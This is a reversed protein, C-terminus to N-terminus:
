LGAKIRNSVAAADELSLHQIQGALSPFGDHFLGLLWPKSISPYQVYLAPERGIVHRAAYTVSGDAQRLWIAEAVHDEEVGEAHLVRDDGPWFRNGLGALRSAEAVGTDAVIASELGGRTLAMYRQASREPIGTGSLWSKWEGHRVLAKAEVLAAGAELGKTAAAKEHAGIAKHVARASAELHPLRNSM